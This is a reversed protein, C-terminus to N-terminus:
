FDSSPKQYENVGKLVESAICELGPLSDELSSSLSDGVSCRLLTSNPVDDVLVLLM